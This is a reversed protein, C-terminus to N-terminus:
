MGFWYSVKLMVVNEAPAELLRSADRAFGFAGDLDRGHRRQQWVLYARSGPRYEWRLVANGRLSRINFSRESFSHDIRGDGTHDVYVRGDRRCLRAGVCVVDSGISASEGEPFHLFDFTGAHSLQKYAEYDGASILPQAFLQLSLTPSAIINGRIDMSFQERRLNGFYYRAGYTTTFADDPLTLVYQDLDFSRRYAPHLAILVGNLPRAEMGAGLSLSHGGRAGADYGISGDFGIQDRRDTHAWARLSRSGPRVMLPGGRTLVDSLIEPEYSAGVGGGSWNLFTFSANANLEGAKRADAWAARTFPDDLVSHRWSHITSLDFSYSRFLAGPTRQQYGLRAGANLRESINSFGLDNVEFRPTRQSLWAGGTWHRGGRRDLQLRWEAGSLTTRTPDLTLYEQDPRQHYHTPSRQIRLIAEESGHVHTAALFGALGWRRDAWAHDFDIGGSLARRPLFDLSGDGPLARDLVTGIVGLTSQGDRFDRQIRGVAQQARPEAHFREIRGDESFFARGRVAETLAGLVGVSVGGGTRGTLKAAGLIRTDNPVSVFEAGPPARAHPERGIRRSYFLMNRGGGLSFDFLRDDRSFFARREPYFTEFASLNIVRPDVEVQGFDPNIAADLVFTSGLGARLDAGLDARRAEGAFFPDGPVAPRREVGAVTFPVVEVYRRPEPLVLGQLQGFRSVNGPVGLPTWAWDSRENTSIKRRGFNIGWTQPDPSPDFRMQSLPIRLEAVWGGEDVGVSSEWIAEWADETSRDDPHFRDVQVGAATIRFTYGSRRDLNSDFSVQFYDYARGGEGRRTLQRGISAPDGDWMRAGVYINHEDFLVRVETQEIAPKGEDPEVQIFGTAVEAEMWDPEDLRGDISIPGSRRAARVSMWRSDPVDPTASSQAALASHV